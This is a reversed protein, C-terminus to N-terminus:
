AYDASNDTDSYPLSINKSLPVKAYTIILKYLGAKTIQNDPKFSNETEEPLKGEDYLIRISNYYLHTSPVDKYFALAQPLQILLLLSVTLVVTFFKKIM